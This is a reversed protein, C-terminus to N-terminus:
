TRLPCADFVDLIGDMDSDLKSDFTDPCGDDDLFGNYTEPQNPCLDLIILLEMAM